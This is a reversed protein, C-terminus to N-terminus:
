DVLDGMKLVISCIGLDDIKVGPVPSVILERITCRRQVRRIKL